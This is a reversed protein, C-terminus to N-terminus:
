LSSLPCEIYFESSPSKLNLIRVLQAKRVKIKQNQTHSSPQTGTTTPNATLADGSTSM